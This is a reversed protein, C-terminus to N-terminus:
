AYRGGGEVPLLDRATNMIKSVREEDLQKLAGRWPLSQLLRYALWGVDRLSAELKAIHSDQDAIRNWGETALRTYNSRPGALGCGPCVVQYRKEAMDDRVLHPQAQCTCLAIAVESGKVTGELDNILPM